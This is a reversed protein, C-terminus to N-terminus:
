PKMVLTRSEDFSRQSDKLSWINQTCAEYIVIFKQPAATVDARFGFM